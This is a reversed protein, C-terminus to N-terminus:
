TEVEVPMGAPDPIPSLAARAVDVCLDFGDEFSACEVDYETELEDTKKQRSIRELAERLRAIEADKAAIDMLLLQEDTPNM